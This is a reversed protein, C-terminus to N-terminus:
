RLARRAFSLLLGVLLGFCSLSACLFGQAPGLEQRKAPAKPTPSSTPAAKPPSAEPRPTPAPRAARAPDDHRSPPPSARRGSSSSGSGAHCTKSVAICSGGCPKGKKCNKAYALGQGFLLLALLASRPHIFRM